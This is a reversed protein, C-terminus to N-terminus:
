AAPVATALGLDSEVRQVWARLAPWRTLAMGGQDALRSYAVLAVDAVSLSEGVVYRREHLHADLTALAREARVVLAPDITDEPMKLLFRQFRLFGVAPGHTVQEWFLWQHMLGRDLADAPILASGEALYLLIANSQALTRGDALELVPVEGAPNIALFAPAQTEKKRIDTHVFRYPIRLHDALFLVKECHGSYTDGYITIEAAM